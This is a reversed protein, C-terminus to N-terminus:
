FDIGGEENTLPEAEYILTSSIHMHLKPTEFLLFSNDQASLREYNSNKM